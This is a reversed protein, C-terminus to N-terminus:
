WTIALDLRRYPLNKFVKEIIWKYFTNSWGQHTFFNLRHFTDAQAFVGQLLHHNFSIRVVKDVCYSMELNGKRLLLPDEEQSQDDYSSSRVLRM